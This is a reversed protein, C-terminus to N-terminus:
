AAVFAIRALARVNTPPFKFHKIINLVCTALKRDELETDASVVSGDADVEAVVRITISALNPDLKRARRVCSQFAIRNDDLVHIVVDDPMTPLSQDIAPPSYGVREPAHESPPTVPASPMTPQKPLNASGPGLDPNSVPNVDVTGSARPPGPTSREVTLCAALGLLLAVRGGM